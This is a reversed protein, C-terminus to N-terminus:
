AVSAARAIARGLDDHTNVNAFLVDPDGHAALEAGSLYTVRLADLVSTLRRDGADLQREITTLCSRAYYACLPERRAVPGREVRPVVADAARGNAEGRARLAVLLAPSVFPM